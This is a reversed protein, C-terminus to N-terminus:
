DAPAAAETATAEARAAYRRSMAAGVMLQIQHFIMVPLLVMGVTAPAFLVGAMPVGSVLSKKSGCFVIAAEDERSFGFRRSLVTTLALLLGLIVACVVAVTLLSVPPIQHWLGRTVAESFSLYVVLLISGRDTVQLIRRNRTVWGGLWRHLVQGLVFPLLLQAAIAELSELSLGAGSTKMLVAVLLPTVAIGVINSITSSCVAAAVNGRAISTFAISSQVTSPLLCLFLVGSALTPSLLREPMVATVALGLLPFIAYTVLFVLLHLRWHTVGSVVAERPLRAGHLFFLWAILLDAIQRGVEAPPGSIPLLSALLVTGVLLLTFLDVPLRPIRFM